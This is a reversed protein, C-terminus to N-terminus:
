AAPKVSTLANLVAMRDRPSAAAGRWFFVEYPQGNIMLYGWRYGDARGTFHQRHWPQDLSLPLHLNMAEGPGIAGWEELDLAVDRAPPPRLRGSWKYFPSGDHDATPPDMPYNTM